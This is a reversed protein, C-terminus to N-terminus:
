EHIDYEAWSHRHYYLVVLSDVVECVTHFLQLLAFGCILLIWSQTCRIVWIM